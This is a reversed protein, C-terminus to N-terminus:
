AAKRGRFISKVVKTEAPKEIGLEGELRAIEKRIEQQNLAKKSKSDVDKPAYKAPNRKEAQWKLVDTAM